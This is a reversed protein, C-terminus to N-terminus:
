IILLKLILYLTRARDVNCFTYWYLDQWSLGIQM